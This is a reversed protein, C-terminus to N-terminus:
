KSLPKSFPSIDKNLLDIYKLLVSDSQQDNETYFQDLLNKNERLINTIYEKTLPKANGTRLSLVYIIREKAKKSTSAIVAGAAGFLLPAYNGNSKSLITKFALFNGKTLVLSYQYGLKFYICNLFLSDNKAIAFIKTRIYDKDISDINSEFKYENGGNWFKDNSTRQIIKLYASYAPLQKKLQDFNLYIGDHFKDIQALVNIAFLFLIITLKLNKM